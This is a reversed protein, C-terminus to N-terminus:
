AKVEVGSNLTFRIDNKGYVTVHDVMYTWTVDNFEKVEAPLNEVAAIFM